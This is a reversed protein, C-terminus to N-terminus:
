FKIAISIIDKHLTKKKSGSYLILSTNSFIFIIDATPFLQLILSRFLFLLLIAFHLLQEVRKM